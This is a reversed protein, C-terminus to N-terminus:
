RVCRSIMSVQAYFVNGDLFVITGGNSVFRKYNNYGEDSVYEDHLLFLTDYANSGDARFIYGYHAEEDRIISVTANLVFDKVHKTFNSFYERDPEQPVGATLMDLNTTIKEGENTTHEYLGYFAYFHNASYAANTFTPEVFAFRNKKDKLPATDNPLNGTALPSNITIDEWNKNGSYDTARALIRHLATDNIEIPM